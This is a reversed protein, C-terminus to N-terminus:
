KMKCSRVHRNDASILPQNRSLTLNLWVNSIMRDVFDLNKFCRNPRSCGRLVGGGGKNRWRFPGWHHNDCRDDWFLLSPHPCLVLPPVSKPPRRNLLVSATSIATWSHSCISCGPKWRSSIALEYWCPLSADTHRSHRQSAIIIRHFFHALNLPTM